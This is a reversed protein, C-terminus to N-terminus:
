RGYDASTGVSGETIAAEEAEKTTVDDTLTINRMMGITGFIPVLLCCSIINLTKSTYTYAHRARSLQDGDLWIRVKTHDGVLATINAEPLEPLAEVLQDHLLEKWIAGAISAGISYGVSTVTLYVATMTGLDQHAVAAQVGVQTACTTIGQGIGIVTQASIMEALPNEPGKVNIMVGSGIINIALGILAWLKYSRTRKMALGILISSLVSGVNWSNFVWQSQDVTLDRSVYIYSTLFSSYIYYSVFILCGTLLGGIVTRDKLFRAPFIPVRSLLRQQLFFIVFGVGGMVLMAIIRGDKWEKPYNRYWNTPFIILFLSGGFLLLGLLDVDLVLNKWFSWTLYENKKKVVLGNRSAKRELWKLGIFIPQACCFLLIIVMGFAWRWQSKGDVQKELFHRAIPPGIWINLIFPLDILSSFFGRNALSSTDAIVIQLLTYVGSTGITYLVTAAAFEGFTDVACMIILGVIYCLVAFAFTEARGFVDALKALPMKCVSNVVGSVAMLLSLGSHQQFSSTIFPLLTGYTNTDLSYVFIVLFIGVYIIAFETRTLLKYAADLAKVGNQAAIEGSPRPVAKEHDPYGVLDVQTSDRQM